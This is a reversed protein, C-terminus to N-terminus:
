LSCCVLVERQLAVTCDKKERQSIFYKQNVYNLIREKGEEKGGEKKEEKKM